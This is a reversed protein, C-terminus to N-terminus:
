SQGELVLVANLAARCGDRFLRESGGHVDEPWRQSKRHRGYVELWYAAAAREVMEDTVVVHSEPSPTAQGLGGDKSSLPDQSDATATLHHPATNREEEEGRESLTSLAAELAARVWDRPEGGFLKANTNARIAAEVMEDTVMAKDTTTM